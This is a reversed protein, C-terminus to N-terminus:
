LLQALPQLAKKIEDLSMTGDLAGAKVEGEYIKSITGVETLIYAFFKTKSNDRVKLANVMKGDMDYIMPINTGENLEELKGPIFLKKVFWPASSINAVMVYPLDVKFLKPLEKVVALSDHNGVIILYKKGKQLLTEKKIEGDKGVLEYTSPLSKYNIINVVNDDAVIQKPKEATFYVLLAFGALGLFVVKLLNAM